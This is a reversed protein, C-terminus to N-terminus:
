FVVFVALLIISFIAILWNFSINGIMSANQHYTLNFFINEIGSNALNTVALHKVVQDLSILIVTFVVFIGM